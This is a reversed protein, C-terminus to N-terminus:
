MNVVIFHLMNINFVIRVNLLNGGQNNQQQQCMFEWQTPESSSRQPDTANIVAPTGDCQHGSPDMIEATASSTSSSFTEKNIDVTASM